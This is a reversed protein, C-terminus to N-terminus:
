KYERGTKKDRLEIRGILEFGAASINAKLIFILADLRKKRKSEDTIDKIAKYATPDTYGEANKRPGHDAM